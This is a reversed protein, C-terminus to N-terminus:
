HVDQFITIDDLFDGFKLPTPFNAGGEVLSKLTLLLEPYNPNHIIFSLFQLVM